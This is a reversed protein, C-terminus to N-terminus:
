ESTQKELHFSATFVFTMFYTLNVNARIQTTQYQIKITFQPRSLDLCLMLCKMM